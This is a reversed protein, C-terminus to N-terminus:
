RIFGPPMDKHPDPDSVSIRIRRLCILCNLFHYLFIFKKSKKFFNQPNTNLYYADNKCTEFFVTRVQNFSVLRSTREFVSNSVKKFSM